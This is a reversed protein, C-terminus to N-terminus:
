RPSTPNGNPSERARGEQSPTKVPHALPYRVGDPNDTRNPVGLCRYARPYTKRPEAGLGHYVPTAGSPDGHFRM